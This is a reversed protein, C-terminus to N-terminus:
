AEDTPPPEWVLQWGAPPGDRLIRSFTPAGGHYKREYRELDDLVWSENADPRRCLLDPINHV